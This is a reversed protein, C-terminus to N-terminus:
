GGAIRLRRRRGAALVAALGIAALMWAAPEPVVSLTVNDFQYQGNADPTGGWDQASFVLFIEKGLDSADPRFFDTVAQFPDDGDVIRTASYLGMSELLGFSGNRGSTVGSRFSIRVQAEAIGMGARVSTDISAKFTKGVDEATVIGLSQYQWGASIVPDNRLIIAAGNLGDTPNYFYGGNSKLGFTGPRYQYLSNATTSGPMTWGGNWGNALTPQYNCNDRAETTYLALAPSEFSPNTLEATTDILGAHATRGALLLSLAATLVTALLRM